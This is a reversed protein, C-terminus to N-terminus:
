SRRLANEVAAVTGDVEEPSALISERNDGAAFEQLETAESLRGDIVIVTKTPGVVELVTTGVQGSGDSIDSGGEVETDPVQALALVLPHWESSFLELDPDSEEVPESSLTGTPGPAAGPDLRPEGFVYPFRAFTDPWNDRYGFRVVM